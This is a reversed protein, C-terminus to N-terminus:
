IYAPNKMDRVKNNTRMRMEVPGPQFGAAQSAEVETPGHKMSWGGEYGGVKSRLEQNLAYEAGGRAWRGM